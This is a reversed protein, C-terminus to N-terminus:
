CIRADSFDMLPRTDGLGWVHVEGCVPCGPNPECRQRQDKPFKFRHLRQDIAGDVGRFGQFRHIMEDIAMAAMSTTFTVVAPSPNGEGLVYAETKRRKYEEPDYLQLAQEAALRSNVIGRCALCATGPQVVSVRGEFAELEPPVSGKRVKIALGCDIVPTNYFYSYNSIFERGFHDDTCGFILDCSKLMDVCEPNGIWNECAATRTGLGMSSVYDSLVIAKSRKALADAMRAGHLRNLNTEEVFDKDFLALYGVGLRALMTAVASGTAGCGVVAVRLQTMDANFTEGFALAQRNLFEVSQGEGRNPYHISFRKGWVLIRDLEASNDGSWRRGLLQGDRTLIISLMRTQQGNRKKLLEFLARENMDDQASFYAAGAAHSHFVAPVLDEERCRGMLRIFSDTKWTIHEPSASILEEAPIPVVIRSLLRSAPQGTWADKDVAACRCLLYTAREELPHAFVLDRLSEFHGEQLCLINM